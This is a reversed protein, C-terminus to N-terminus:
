LGSLITGFDSNANIERMLIEEIKREEYSKTESSFGSQYYVVKGNSIVITNPAGVFGLGKTLEGERDYLQVLNNWKSKKSFTTFRDFSDVDGMYILYYNVGLKSYKEALVDLFDNNPYCVGCRTHWFDFVSIGSTNVKVISSKNDVFSLSQRDKWNVSAVSNVLKEFTLRPVVIETIVLTSAIWFLLFTLAILKKKNLTSEIVICGVLFAMVCTVILLPVVEPFLERNSTIAVFVSVLFPSFFVLVLLMRDRIQYLLIGFIFYIVSGTIQPSKYSTPSLSYCVVIYCAIGILLILFQNQSIRKFLAIM